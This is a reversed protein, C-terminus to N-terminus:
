WIHRIIIKKLLLFINVLKITKAFKLVNKHKNQDINDMRVNKINKVREMAKANKVTLSDNSVLKVIFKPIELNNQYFISQLNTIKKFKYYM